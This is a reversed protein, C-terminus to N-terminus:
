FTITLSTNYRTGMGVYVGAATADFSNNITTFQNNQADSIYLTNLVNLVSVRLDFRVKQWKFGYGAHMDLLGYSPIQWSQKGATGKEKSLDVPNFNSFNQGFYTFQPKFYLNKIPEYRVSAAFSMQAADGVRVGKADFPISDLIQSNNDLVYATDTSTWV